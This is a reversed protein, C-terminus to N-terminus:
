WEVLLVPVGGPGEILYLVERIKPLGPWGELLALDGDSAFTTALNTLTDTPIGETAGPVRM